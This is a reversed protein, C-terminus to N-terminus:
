MVILVVMRGVTPWHSCRGWSHFRRQLTGSYTCYSTGLGSLTLRM